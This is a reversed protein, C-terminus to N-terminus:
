LEMIVCSRSRITGRQRMTLKLATTHFSFRQGSLSQYFPMRILLLGPTHASADKSGLTWESTKSVVTPPLSTRRRTGPLGEPLQLINQSPFACHLQYCAALYRDQRHHHLAKWPGLSLLFQFSCSRVTQFLQRTRHHHILLTPMQEKSCIGPKLLPRARGLKLKRRQLQALM